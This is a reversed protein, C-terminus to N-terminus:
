LEYLGEGYLEHDGDAEKEICSLLQRDHLIQAYAPNETAIGLHNYVMIAYDYWVSAAEVDRLQFYTNGLCHAAIATGHHTPGYIHRRLEVVELYHEAAREGDGTCLYLRALHQLTNVTDVHWPGLAEKRINLSDTLCKFLTKVEFHEHIEAARGEQHAECYSVVVLDLATALEVRRKQTRFIAAAQFYSNMSSLYRRAQTEAQGLRLFLKATLISKPDQGLLQKRLDKIQQRAAHRRNKQEAESTVGTKLLPTSPMAVVISATKTPTTTYTRTTPAAVQQREENLIEEEKGDETECGPPPRQEFSESAWHYVEHLSKGPFRCAVTSYATPVKSLRHHINSVNELYPDYMSAWDNEKTGDGMAMVTNEWDIPLVFSDGFATSGVSFVSNNTEEDDLTTLPGFFSVEDVRGSATQNTRQRRAFFAAGNRGRFLSKM